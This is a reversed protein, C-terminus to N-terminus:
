QALGLAKSLPCEADCRAELASHWSRGIARTGARTSALTRGGHRSRNLIVVVELFVDRMELICVLLAVDQVDLSKASLDLVVLAFSRAVHKPREAVTPKLWASPFM